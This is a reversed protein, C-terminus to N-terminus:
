IDMYEQLISTIMQKCKQVITFNIQLKVGGKKPEETTKATNSKPQNSLM